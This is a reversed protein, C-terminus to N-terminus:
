SKVRQQRDLKRLRRQIATKVTGQLWPVELAALCDSVSFKRVDDIRDQVGCRQVVSGDSLTREFPNHAM